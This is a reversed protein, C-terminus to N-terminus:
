QLYQAILQQIKEVQFRDALDKITGVFPLFQTDSQELQAIQKRLALIRGQHALDYLRALEDRGPVVMQTATASLPQQQRSSSVRVWELGLYVQLVELLASLQLPKSLFANAGAALSQQRDSASISASCIAIPVEAMEPLQRLKQTMELGDLVPMMRDTLIADPQLAIAQEFGQLGDSAEVVKFGLPELLHVLVSRNDQQDDVVLITRQRGVYGIIECEDGNVENTLDTSHAVVPLTVEFWFTSGQGLQSRVQLNSGMLYLIKQSINLGLGTGEAQRDSDGAQEFPLFITELQASDIGVGTDEIQFRLDIAQEGDRIVDVRFTVAGRDTFKIANGLLNISVQRLRKEDALVRAPLQPSPLYILDIAKQEARIQCVDVVETLLRSLDIASPNLEMKGAEIKSLDLVENILELLHVGCREITKVGKREKPTLTSSAQLIQAYGLIGNLPTRLEHSMSALFDSKALNAHDATDKAQQIQSAAQHLEQFKQELTRAMQQFNGTLANMEMVRSTPWVIERRDLLNNPLNTTLQALQWIPRVFRRSTLHALVVASIAILLLTALNNIYLQNLEVLTPRLPTEIAVMWPLDESVIVTQGYFAHNRRALMPMGKPEWYYRGDNLVQLKGSQRRDFVQGLPFDPSTSLIVRNLDDLLISNISFSFTHAQLLDLLFRSDLQAIAYGKPRDTPGIPVSQLLTLKDATRIIEVPSGSTNPSRKALASFNQRDIESTAVILLDNADTIYLDQLAPSIRQALLVQAPLKDTGRERRTAIALEQLSKDNVKYWQDLANAIHTAAAQLNTAIQAEKRATTDRSDLVILCLTPIFVFAVLLNLLTQEFSLTKAFQPRATWRYLPLNTLLLSAMLANFIGNVAQKLGVLWVSSAEFGLIGSYFLWVLPLGICGWYLADLLLLNQSKHRLGWGVWLAEAMFIFIAYPHKWLVITHLSVIAAVLTGWRSGYLRVAILTAISGFIFDISYVIPIPFCNGAYGVIALLILAILSRRRDTSDTFANALHSRM